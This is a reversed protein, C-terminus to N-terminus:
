IASELMEEIKWKHNTLNEFPIIIHMPTSKGGILSFLRVDLYFLSQAEGSLTSLPRLVQSLFVAM